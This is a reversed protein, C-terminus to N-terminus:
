SFKTFHVNNWKWKPLLLQIYEKTAKNAMEMRKMYMWKIVNRENHNNTPQSKERHTKKMNWVHNWKFLKGDWVYIAASHM